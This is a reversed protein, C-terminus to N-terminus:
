HAFAEYGHLDLWLRRFLNAINTIGYCRRKLVKIKNNFGEIWGSSLRSIFYNTIEDMWTELTSIFKDFCELGSGKVAAIWRRLARKASAKSQKTEFVKTLKERLAHAQRLPPSCEFLLELLALEEATLDSSSRRLLWMVGKLGASEEPKLLRKLERRERKRLDDLAARYLKAVHFRDAVVKAQPM